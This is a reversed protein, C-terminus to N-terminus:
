GRCEVVSRSVGVMTVMWYEPEEQEEERRSGEGGELEEPQQSVLHAVTEVPGGSVRVQWSSPRMRGLQDVVSGPPLPFTFSSVERQELIGLAAAVVGRMTDPPLPIFTATLSALRALRHLRGLQRVEGSRDEAKTLLSSIAERTLLESTLLQHSLDRGVQLPPPTPPSPPTIGEGTWM